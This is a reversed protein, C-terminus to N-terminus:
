RWREDFVRYKIMMPHVRIGRSSELHERAGQGLWALLQERGLQDWATSPIVSQSFLAGTPLVIRWVVLVDDNLAAYQGERRFAMEEALRRHIIRM